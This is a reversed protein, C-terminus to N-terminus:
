GGHSVGNSLQPRCRVVTGIGAGHLLDNLDDCLEPTDSFWTESIIALSAEMVNFTDIFSDIKPCQLRANTNIIDFSDNKGTM